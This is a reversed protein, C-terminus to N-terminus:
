AWDRVKREEVRCGLCRTHGCNWTSCAENYGSAAVPGSSCSCCFWFSELHHEKKPKPRRNSPHTPELSANKGRKAGESSSVKEEEKSMANSVSGVDDSAPTSLLPINSIPVRRSQATDEVEVDDSAPTSLSINEYIRVKRYGAIDEVEIDKRAPLPVFAQEM